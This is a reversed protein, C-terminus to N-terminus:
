RKTKTVTEILRNAQSQAFKQQVHRPLCKILGKIFTQRFLQSTLMSVYFSKVNNLYYCYNSIGYVFLSIPQQLLSRFDSASASAYTYVIIWQLSIIATALVQTFIMTM